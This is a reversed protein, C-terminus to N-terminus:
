HAHTASRLSLPSCCSIPWLLPLHGARLRLTPETLSLVPKPDQPSQALLLCEGVLLANDPAASLLKKLLCLHQHVRVTEDHPPSEDM